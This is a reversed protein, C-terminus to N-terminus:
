DYAMLTGLVYLDQNEFNATRPFINITGNANCDYTFEKADDTHQYSSYNEVKSHGDLFSVPISLVPVSQWQKANVKGIYINFFVVTVDKFKLKRIKIASQDIAVGSLPTVNATSESGQYQESLDGVADVLANYKPDWPLEGHVMKFKSYDSM